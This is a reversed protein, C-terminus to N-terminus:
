GACRGAARPPTASSGDVVVHGYIWERDAAAREATSRTDLEQQRAALADTSVLHATLTEDSDAFEEDDLMERVDRAVSALEAARARARDAPRRDPEQGLLEAAEDLLPVDSVTWAAGDARHLATRDAEPLAAAAVAICEPSAWLEALLRAPTLAPWLADVAAHLAPTTRLEALADARLDAALEPAERPALWGAGIRDVAQEALADLVAARFAPRAENHLAGTARAKARAREAIKRDIEVTVDDLEVPLPEDPLEERDAVAAALVDIM